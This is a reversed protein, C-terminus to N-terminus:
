DFHSTLFKLVNCSEPDKYTILRLVLLDKSESLKVKIHQNQLIGLGQSIDLVDAMNEKVVSYFANESLRTVLFVGQNTWDQYVKYNM